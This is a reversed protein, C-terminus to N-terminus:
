IHSAIESLDTQSPLNLKKRMRSGTKRVSDPSIGLMNAIETVSLNLKTLAILRIEALTLDPYKEKLRVFFDVHVKEFMRKFNTWDEETLITAQYLKDMIQENEPSITNASKTKLEEVEEKFRDIVRNKELLSNMYWQLANEANKLEEEAKQKELMLIAKDKKRKLRQRNIFLYSIILLFVGVSLLFNRFIQERKRDSELLQIESLYQETQVKIETTRLLNQDNQASIKDKYYIFSDQLLYASRFDGQMFSLRAKVRFYERLLSHNRTKEFLQEVGRIRDAAATLSDDDMNINALLLLCNAASNWEGYKSSLTYDLLILPKASDAKNNKLFVSAMNGSLIGIWVSDKTNKAMTLGKSYYYLSTDNKELRGYTLGLTNYMHIGSRENVFPYRLAENLYRLAKNYDAFEYYVKGLNYLYTNMEPFETFGVQQFKEYAELLHEFAQPFAKTNYYKMGLRYTLEAEEKRFDHRTAFEQAHRLSLLVSDENKGDYDERDLVNVTYILALLELRTDQQAVAFDYLGKVDKKATAFEAHHVKERYVREATEYREPKPVQKVVDFSQAHLVGAGLLYLLVWCFIFRPTITM